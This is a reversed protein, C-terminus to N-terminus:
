TRSAACSSAGSASYPTSAAPGQETTLPTNFLAFFARYILSNSDLLMLREM